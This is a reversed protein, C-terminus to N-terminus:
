VSEKKLCVNIWLEESRGPRLDTTTISELIKTNNLLGALKSLKEENICTFIRSGDSFDEDRKKFSLYFIGGSNIFTLYRNISAVLNEYPIHLFSANAWIGDFLIKSDFQDFSAVAVDQKILKSAFVAMQTSGDFATVRCGRQLFAYSDRGSGCGADLVAPSDPLYSLFLNRMPSFDVNVTSQVYAQSHQDYYDITTSTQDDRVSSM